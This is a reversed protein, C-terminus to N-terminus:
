DVFTGQAVTRQELSFANAMEPHTGADANASEILTNNTAGCPSSYLRINLDLNNHVRQREGYCNRQSELGEDTSIRQLLPHFALTGSDGSIENSFRHFGSSSSDNMPCTAIPRYLSLQQDPTMQFLLPHMQFDETQSNSNHNSDPFLDLQKPPEVKSSSADKRAPTQSINFRARSIVRVSPPLNVPPLDPALKVVRYGKKRRNPLPLFASVTSSSYHKSLRSSLPTSSQITNSPNSIPHGTGEQPISSSNPDNRHESDALFAEHVYAEEEYGNNDNDYEGNLGEAM